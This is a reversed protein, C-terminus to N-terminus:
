MHTCRDTHNKPVQLDKSVEELFDDLCQKGASFEDLLEAARKVVPGLSAM